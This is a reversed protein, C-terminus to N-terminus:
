RIVLRRSSREGGASLRVVYSGPSLHQLDMNWSSSKGLIATTSFVARGTADLVDIATYTRERDWSITFLGTGPNPYINWMIPASTATMGTSFDGYICITYDGGVGYQTNSYVRVVYPTNPTTAVELPTDPVTVCASEVGECGDYVVFAWDTMNADPTLEIFVSTNQGSNFSYWVDQYYGTTADCGPDGTSQTSSGNNGPTALAPCDAALHVSLGIAQACDDNDVTEHVCIDFTTTQPQAIYWDYVRIYYTSGVTLGTITGAEVDGDLGNDICGLFSLGDCSGSYLGFVGDFMDSGDVEIMATAATAVFSFWVDEDAVGVYGSCTDAPFSESAGLVDGTVPVCEPGMTLPIAGLCEDNEPPGSACATGNVNVTYLGATGSPDLPIPILYEGPPVHLFTYTYYGDVCTTNDSAYARGFHELGPCGTFISSFTVGSFASGCFDVTVDLCEGTTFVEWMAPYEIGATDTLPVQDVTATTNDGNFTVTSGAILTQPVANACDDNSGGGRFSPAGVVHHTQPALHMSRKNVTKQANMLAPAALMFM